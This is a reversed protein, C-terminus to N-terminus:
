ALLPRQAHSLCEGPIPISRQPPPHRYFAKPECGGVFGILMKPHPQSHSKCLLVRLKVRAQCAVRFVKLHSWPAGRLVVLLSRQAFRSSPVLSLVPILVSAKHVASWREIGLVEYPERLEGPSLGSNLDPTFGPYQWTHGRGGGWFFFSSLLAETQLLLAITPLTSM